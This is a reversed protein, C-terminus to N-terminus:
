STQKSYKKWWFSGCRLYWVKLILKIDVHNQYKWKIKTWVSIQSKMGPSRVVVSDNTCEDVKALLSAARLASFCISSCWARLVLVHLEVPMSIDFLIVGIDDLIMWYGVIEMVTPFESHVPPELCSDEALGVDRDSRRSSDAPETKKRTKLLIM